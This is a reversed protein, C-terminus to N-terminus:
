EYRLAVLPDVKTARRGPVYSALLAAFLLVATASGFAFWDTPKVEFLLSAILRTLAFSGGIGILAGILALGFGQRLVLRMVNQRSAGLAMRIGIEQTRQAVAYSIVGYIGTITLVLGIVGFLGFLLTYLRPQNVTASIAENLPRVNAVAVSRDGARIQERFNGILGAPHVISRAVFHGWRWSNQQYPLYLEPATKKILSNHHVDTLIGVIEWRKPDGENQNAGIGFIYKGVPEENPFYQQALAQNIIAVGVGGARDGDNFYRGTILPIRMTQFYDTSVTRVNATPEGGPTPEPHGEIRFDGGVDAGSFPMPAVFAASEVGPLSKLSAITQSVYQLREPVQEYKPATLSVSGFMVNNPDFGPSVNVLQTFSKIMLGAGVLLVLSLAVEIVVLSDRWLRLSRGSTAAKTGSKLIENVDPRSAKVTPVLSFLLATGLSVILTFILVRADLQLEELRPLQNEGYFKIAQLGWAAILLGVLGALLSVLLSEIMLHQAIRWRSAGLAARIATEKQKTTARVLLLNAANTCGILLIFAVAGLLLWVARRVQPGVIHERAAVLQITTGRDPAPYEQGLNAAITTMEAQAQEITVDPKLRGFSKLVFAGRETLNEGEAAVTTWMRVGKFSLPFEFHPPLIGVVVHTKGNVSIQQNLAAENGGFRSQWFEYSIIAVPQAGRNEEEAIFNRGRLPNVRLLPFFNATVEMGTVREAEGRDEVVFGNPKYGAIDEFSHNRTRWDQLDLYSVYSEVHNGLPTKWLAVVQESDAIAPPKLILTNIVSFMTTTAGIGLALTAVAVVTFGPQKLLSRVGYRIDKFLKTM